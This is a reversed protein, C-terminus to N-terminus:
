EILEVRINKKVGFEKASPLRDMFVDIRNGKIASGVDQAVRYGIGEIYVRSGIPIVNPDVAITVGNEARSGSATIGYDPDAPTKGTSEIGATYATLTFYGLFKGKPFSKRNTSQPYTKGKQPFRLKQGAIIFSPDVLNNEEALEEVSYGYRKSLQSLTDGKKVRVFGQHSAEGGRIAIFPMVFTGSFVILM